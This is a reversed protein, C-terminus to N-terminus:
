FWGLQSKIYDICNTSRNKEALDLPKEGSADVQNLDGNFKVLLQIFRDKNDLAAAHLPTQSYVCLCNM